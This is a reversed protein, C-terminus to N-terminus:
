FVYRVYVTGHPGIAIDGAPGELSPYVRAGGTVGLSHHPSKMHWDLGLTGGFMLGIDDAQRVGYTSLIDSPVLTLGFTGGAWIAFRATANIQFRVEGGFSLVEFASPSPPTPADTEHISLEFFGCAWLWPQIEVGLVISAMFGAKSIDGVGNLFGRAGLHGEIFFGHDYLDRSIEIAEIPLREVDLRTPDPEETVQEPQARAVGAACLV